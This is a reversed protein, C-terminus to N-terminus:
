KKPSRAKVVRLVPRSYVAGSSRPNPSIAFTAVRPLVQVSHDDIDLAVNVKYTGSGLQAGPFVFELSHNGTLPSIKAGLAAANTSLAVVGQSSIVQLRV